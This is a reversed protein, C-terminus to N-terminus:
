IKDINIILDYDLYCYITDQTNNLEIKYLPKTNITIKNNSKSDIISLKNSKINFKCCSEKINIEGILSGNFGIKIPINSFKNITSKLEKETIKIM